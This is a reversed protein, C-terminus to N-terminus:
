MQGLKQSLYLERCELEKFNLLAVLWYNEVVIDYVLYYLEEPKVKQDQVTFNSLVLQVTLSVAM